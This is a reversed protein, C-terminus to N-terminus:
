KKSKRSKGKKNYSKRSNNIKRKSNRLRKGGGQMLIQNNQNDVFGPPRANDLIDEYYNYYNTWPAEEAKNEDHDIMKMTYNIDRQILEDKAADPTTPTNYILGNVPINLYDPFLTNNNYNTQIQLNTMTSINELLHLVIFMTKIARTISNNPNYKMELNKLKDFLIQCNTKQGENLFGYMIIINNMITIKDDETANEGLLIATLLNLNQGENAM